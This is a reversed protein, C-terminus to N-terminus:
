QKTHYQKNSELGTLIPTAVPIQHDSPKGKKPDDPCIAPVIIPVQYFRWLSTM